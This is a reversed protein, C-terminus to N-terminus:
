SDTAACLSESVQVVQESVYLRAGQLVGCSNCAKGGEM